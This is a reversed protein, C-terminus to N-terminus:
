SNKINSIKKYIKTIKQFNGRIYQPLETLNNIIWDAKKISEKSIPKGSRVLIKKNIGAAEGALIDEIKDGVIYSNRMDINFNKKANLLMGPQPKRCDCKQRYINKKGYPHHPCFYMGYLNINNKKLFFNIWETLYFFQNLNFLGRAIGSQNTVIILAFGMNKLERLTDLVGDIFKFDSIKIVYKYDFNLTGDRDLFIAPIPKLM